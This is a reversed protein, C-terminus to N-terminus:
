RESIKITFGPAKTQIEILQTLTFNIFAAEPFLFTIMVPQVRPNPRAM